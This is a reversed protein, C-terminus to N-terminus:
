IESQYPMKIKLSNLLNNSTNISILEINDQINCVAMRMLGCEKNSHNFSM